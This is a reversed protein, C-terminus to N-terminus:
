IKANGCPFLNQDNVLHKYGHIINRCSILNQDHFLANGLDYGNWLSSCQVM